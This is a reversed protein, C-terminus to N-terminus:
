KWGFLWGLTSSSGTSTGKCPISQEVNTPIQAQSPARECTGYNNRIIDMMDDPIDRMQEDCTKRGTSDGAEYRLYQSPGRRLTTTVEYTNRSHDRSEKREEIIGDPLARMSSKTSVSSFSFMPQSNEQRTHESPVRQVDSPTRETENYQQGNISPDEMLVKNRLPNSSAPARSFPSSPEVHQSEEMEKAIQQLEEFFRDEGLLGQFINNIQQEMFQLPDQIGDQGWFGNPGNPFGVM